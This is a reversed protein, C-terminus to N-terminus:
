TAKFCRIVIHKSTNFVRVRSLHETQKAIDPWTGWRPDLLLCCRTPGLPAHLRIYTIQTLLLCWDEEAQFGVVSAKDPTDATVKKANTVDNTGANFPKSLIGQLLYIQSSSNLVLSYLGNM